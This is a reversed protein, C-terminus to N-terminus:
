QVKLFREMIKDKYEQWRIRKGRPLETCVVHVIYHKNAEKIDGNCNSEAYLEQYEEKTRHENNTM